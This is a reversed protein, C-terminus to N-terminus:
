WCASSSLHRRPLSSGPFQLSLQTRVNLFLIRAMFKQAAIVLVVLLLHLKTEENNVLDIENLGFDM